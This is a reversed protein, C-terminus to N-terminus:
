RLLPAQCLCATFTQIAGKATAYAASTVNELDHFQAAGSLIGGGLVFGNDLPPIPTSKVAPPGASARAM